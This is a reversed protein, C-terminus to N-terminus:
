DRSGEKTARTIRLSRYATLTDAPAPSGPTLCSFDLCIQSVSEKM